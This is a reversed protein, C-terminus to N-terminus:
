GHPTLNLRKAVQCKLLMWVVFSIRRRRSHTGACECLCVCAHVVVNILKKAARCAHFKVWVNRLVLVPYVYICACFPVCVCLLLSDGRLGPLQAWRQIGWICRDEVCVRQLTQLWWSLQSVSDAGLGQHNGRWLDSNECHLPLRSSLSLNPTCWSCQSFVGSVCDTYVIFLSLGSIVWLACLTM